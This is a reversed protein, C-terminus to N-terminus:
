RRRQGLRRQATPTLSRVTAREVGPLTAVSSTAWQQTTAVPAEAVVTVDPSPLAPYDRDLDEFFVRKPAGVPLLEIGSSTLKMGLAPWALAVLAALTVVIVAIPRAQVFRALQSFM